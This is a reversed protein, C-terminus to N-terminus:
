FPDLAYFIVVTMALNFGAHSAVAGWISGTWRRFLHFVLSAAFMSALWLAGAAWFVSWSGGIYVVGFHALHIVAFAAADVLAAKTEGLRPAFSEQALGRYIMEEGIPSFTVGILAFIVFYITRDSDSVGSPVASYTNGIYVFANELSDGWLAFFLVFTVSGAAAGAVAGPITWRWRPPMVIGMARRGAKTLLIWPLLAMAVFVVSVAQYQGTVNAQLVLTVRIAGLAILLLTGTRLDFGLWRAFPRRFERGARQPTSRKSGPERTDNVAARGERYTRCSCPLAPDSSRADGTAAMAFIVVHPSAPDGCRNM